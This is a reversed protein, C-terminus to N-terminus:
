KKGLKKMLELYKTSKVHDTLIMVGESVKWNTSRNDSPVHGNKNETSFIVNM